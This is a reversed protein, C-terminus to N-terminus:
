LTGSGLASADSAIVDAILATDISKRERIFDAIQSAKDPNALILEVLDDDDIVFAGSELRFVDDEDLNSCARQVAILARCQSKLEDSEQSFDDTEPLQTYRHLAAIQDRAAYYSSADLDDLFFLCERVSKEGAGKTIAIRVIRAFAVSNTAQTHDLRELLSDPYMKLTQTLANVNGGTWTSEMVTALGHILDKRRIILETNKSFPISKANGATVRKKHVTTTRGNKDVTLTPVLHERSTM